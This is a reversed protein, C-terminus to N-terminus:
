SPVHDEEGGCEGKACADAEAGVEEAHARIGEHEELRRPPRAVRTGLVDTRPVCHERDDARLGNTRQVSCRGAAGATGRLSSPQLGIGPASPATVLMPMSPSVMGCSCGSSGAEASARRSRGRRAEPAGAAARGRRAHRAAPGAAASAARARRGGRGRPTVRARGACGLRRHLRRLRRLRRCSPRPADCNRARTAAVDVAAAVVVAPRLPRAVAHRPPSPPYCTPVAPVGAPAARQGLGQPRLWRPVAPVHAPPAHPYPARRCPTAESGSAARACPAAAAARAAAATTAATPQTSGTPRPTQPWHQCRLRCRAVVAQAVPGRAPM